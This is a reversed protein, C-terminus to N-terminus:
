EVLSRCLREAVRSTVDVEVRRGDMSEGHIRYTRGLPSRYEVVRDIRVSYMRSLRAVTAHVREMELDMVRRAAATARTAARSMRPLSAIWSQPSLDCVVRWTGTRDRVDIIM